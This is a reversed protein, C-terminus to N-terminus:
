YYAIDVDALQMSRVKMELPLMLVPSQRLQRIRKCIPGERSFGVYFLAREVTNMNKENQAYRNVM